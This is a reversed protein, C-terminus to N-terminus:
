QVKLRKNKCEFAQMAYRPDSHTVKDFVFGGITQLDAHIRAIAEMFYAVAASRGTMQIMRKLPLKKSFSYLRSYSCPKSVTSALLSNPRGSSARSYVDTCFISASKSILLMLSITLKM